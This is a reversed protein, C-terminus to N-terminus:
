TVVSKKTKNQGEVRALFISKHGDTVILTNRGKMELGDLNPRSKTVLGPFLAQKLKSNRTHSM